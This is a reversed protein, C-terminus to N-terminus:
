ESSNDKNLNINTIITGNISRKKAINLNVLVNLQQVLVTSFINFLLPKYGYEKCYNLYHAYLCTNPDSQKNGVNVSSDPEYSIHSIIWDVLPNTDNLANPDILKNTQIANNLLNLNDDTNNLAWNVLGPLSDSLTGSCQNTSLNYNFLNRDIKNPVTTM